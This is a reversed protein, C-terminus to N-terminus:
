GKDNSNHNRILGFGFAYLEGGGGAGVGVGAGADSRAAGDGESILSAPVVGMTSLSVTRSTSDMREGTWHAAIRESNQGGCRRLVAAASIKVAANPRVVGGSDKGRGMGRYALVGVQRVHEGYYACHEVRGVARWGSRDVM